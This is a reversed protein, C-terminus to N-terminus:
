RVFHPIRKWLWIKIELHCINRDYIEGHMMEGHTKECSNVTM